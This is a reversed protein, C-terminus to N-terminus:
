RSELRRTKTSARAREQGPVTETGTDVTPDAFLAARQAQLDLTESRRVISM